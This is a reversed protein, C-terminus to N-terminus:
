SAALLGSGCHCCVTFPLLTVLCGAGAPVLTCTNAEVCANDSYMYSCAPSQSTYSKMPVHVEVAHVPLSNDYPLPSQIVTFYM